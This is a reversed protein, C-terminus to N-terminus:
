KIIKEEVLFKIIKEIEELDTEIPLEKTVIKHMTVAVLKEVDKITTYFIEKLTEDNISELMRIDKAKKTTLNVEYNLLYNLVRNQNDPTLFSLEYSIGLNIKNSDLMDIFDPILNGMKVYRQVTRLDDNFETKTVNKARKQLEHQKSYALIKEKHSLSLRQNLNSNLMILEAEDTTLGEKITCPVETAGNLKLAEIRNHGSLIIYNDEDKKWVVPYHLLGQEKISEALQSLRDIDYSQFPQSEWRRLLKIPLYYAKVNTTGGTLNSIARNGKSFDFTKVM